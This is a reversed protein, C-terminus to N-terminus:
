QIDKILKRITDYQSSNATVMKTVGITEKLINHDKVTSPLELFTMMVDYTFDTNSEFFDKRVTFPDTPLAESVWLTKMKLKKEPFYTEWAGKKGKADNCFVAIADVEGKELMEISNKHNQTYVIQLDEKNVGLKNLELIPLLYGSTSKEDVFGIKKGKLSKLSAIKRNPKTVVTSYYFPKDWVSKLLVKANAEKEAYVFSMATYFAFDVKKDKMAQ